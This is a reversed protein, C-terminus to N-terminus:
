FGNPAPISPVCRVEKPGTATSSTPQTAKRKKLVHFSAEAAAVEGPKDKDWSVESHGTSDPVEMRGTRQKPNGSDQVIGQM